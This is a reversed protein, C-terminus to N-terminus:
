LALDNQTASQPAKALVDFRDWDLWTPGGLVNNPEIEYALSILDVV